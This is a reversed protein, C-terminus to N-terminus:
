PKWSTLTVGGGPAKFQAVLAAAPDAADAALLGPLGIAALAHGLVAHAGAPASLHLAALQVGSEPLSDSPHADGWEILTPLAGDFQRLGDRRVTIHWQLANRRAAIVEGVDLGLGALRQRAARVDPTSAVVHILRPATQVAAQLAPDDLGFWRAHPPAAAEPDIAIIELYAQPHAPSSIRLLRNHTGMLPHKGGAVPAVGLTAECWAAGQELTAAAVVLHDVRATM